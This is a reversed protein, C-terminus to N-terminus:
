KLCTRNLSNVLIPTFVLGLTECDSENEISPKRPKKQFTAAKFGFDFSRLSSCQFDEARSLLDMLQKTILRDRLWMDM